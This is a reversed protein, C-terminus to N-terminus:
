PSYLTIYVIAPFGFVCSLLKGACDNTSTVCISDDVHGGIDVITPTPLQFRANFSALDNLSYYQGIAAYVVQTPPNSSSAATNSSVGYIRNILGPTVFSDIEIGPTATHTKKMATINVPQM